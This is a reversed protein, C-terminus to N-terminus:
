STSIKYVRNISECCMVCFLEKEVRPKREMCFALKNASNPFFKTYSVKGYGTPLIVLDDPRILASAEIRQEQEPKLGELKLFEISKSLGVFSIPM